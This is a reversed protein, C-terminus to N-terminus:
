RITKEPQTIRMYNKLNMLMHWQQSQGGEARGFVQNEVM